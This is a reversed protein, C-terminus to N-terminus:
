QWYLVSALITDLKGQVMGAEKELAKIHNSLAPQTLCMYQATATFNLRKSLEIFERLHSINM